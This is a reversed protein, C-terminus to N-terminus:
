DNQALRLEKVGPEGAISILVSDPRIELCRVNIKQVAVHSHNTVVISIDGEEGPAFSTRNILALPRATGPRIGVLKLYSQLPLPASDLSERGTGRSLHPFFPDRGVEAGGLQFMSRPSAATGSAPPQSQDASHVSPKKASAGPSTATALSVSENSGCGSLALLILAGMWLGFDTFWRGTQFQRKLHM